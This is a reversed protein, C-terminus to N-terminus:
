LLMRIWLWCRCSFLVFSKCVLFSFYTSLCHYMKQVVICSCLFHKCLNLVSLICHLLWDNQRISDWRVAEEPPQLLSIGYQILGCIFAVVQMFIHLKVLFLLWKVHKYVSAPFCLNKELKKSWCLVIFIIRYVDRSINLYKM